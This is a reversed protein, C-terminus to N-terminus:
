WLSSNFIQWTFQERITGLKSIGELSKSAGVYFIFFTYVIQKRWYSRASLKVFKYQNSTEVLNWDITFLMNEHRRFLESNTLKWLFLKKLKATLTNATLKM